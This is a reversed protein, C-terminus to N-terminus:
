GTSTSCTTSTSGWNRGGEIWNYEWGKLFPVAEEAYIPEKLVWYGHLGGGSSIVCTPELPMIAALAALAEDFNAVLRLGPAM